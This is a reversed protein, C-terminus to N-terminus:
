VSPGVRNKKRIDELAHPGQGPTSAAAPAILPNGSM